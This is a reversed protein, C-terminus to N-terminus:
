EHILLCNPHFISIRQLLSVSFSAEEFGYVTPSGASNNAIIGRCHVLFVSPTEFKHPNM